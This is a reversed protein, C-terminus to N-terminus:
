AYQNLGPPMLLILQFQLFSVNLSYQQLLSHFANLSLKICLAARYLYSIYIFRCDPHM